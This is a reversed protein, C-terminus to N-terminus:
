LVKRLEDSVFGVMKPAEENLPQELYKAQGQSGRGPNHSRPGPHMLTTDEHQRAAYPLDYGIVKVGQSIPENIVHKQLDGRDFPVIKQSKSLVHFSFVEVGREAAKVGMDGALVINKMVEGVGEMRIISM